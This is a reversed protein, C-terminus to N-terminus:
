MSLKIKEKKIYICQVYCRIVDSFSKVKLLSRLLLDPVLVQVLNLDPTSSIHLAPHLTLILMQFQARLAM